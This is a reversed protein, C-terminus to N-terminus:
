RLDIVEATPYEKKDFTFLDNGYSQGAKYSTIRIAVSGGGKQTMSICLPQFNDKTVYLIVCQLDQKRDAATLVVEYAPKGGYTDTKGLKMNYGQKYISLLAYPNISQLEEPTPESVNVEDSNALYSWQTRGDFWTKVGDADLQFKEGKLRIVGASTGELTGKSYTQVTFDAQIGGAERFATATRDLIEKADLQQASVPLALGFLWICALLLNKMM